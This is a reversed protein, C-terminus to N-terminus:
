QNHALLLKSNEHLEQSIFKEWQLQMEINLSHKTESDYKNQMAHYEAKKQNFLQRIEEQYNASYHYNDFLEKLKKAYLAAIDFHLQEHKLLAQSRRDPRCWSTNKNFNAYVKFHVEGSQNVVYDYKVEAFSEADFRSSDIIRGTFDAWNLPTTETWILTNQQATLPLSLFSIFALLLLTKM